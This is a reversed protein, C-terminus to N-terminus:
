KCHVHILWAYIKKLETKLSHKDGVMSNTTDTCVSIFWDTLLELETNVDVVLNTMTIADTHIVERLRLFTDKITQFRNSYYRVCFASLKTDSNDTSDDIYFSYPTNSQKLDNLLEKKFFPGLIKKVLLTCKDKHLQLPYNSGELFEKNIIVGLPDISSYLLFQFDLKTKSKM